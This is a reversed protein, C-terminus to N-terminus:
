SKDKIEKAVKALEVALKEFQQEYETAPMTDKRAKLQEIDSELQARRRILAALSGEAGAPPLQEADLYTARAIAGDPGPAAAEKGVKDGNDDLLSRETSLQGRQEYYQKVAASAYSFAEWVSIRGNKDVDAADTDLAEIFYQPFVTDFKQAASDTATIVVRGRASLEALFPFSAGTTNVVVLRGTIGQLLSAWETSDIDPGVLNFKAIDGDYTGHGILMVLLVDDKTIRGRLDGIVRKVNDRTPKEAAGEALVIVHDDPLKMRSKFIQTLRTRWKEYDKAYTEGASAGSIVLAYHDSAFVPRSAFVFLCALAAILWTGGTAFRPGEGFGSHRLGAKARPSIVRAEARLGFGATTMATGLATAADM